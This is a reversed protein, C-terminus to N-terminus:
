FDCLSSAEWAGLKGRVFAPSAHMFLIIPPRERRNEPLLLKKLKQFSVKQSKAEHVKRMESLLM